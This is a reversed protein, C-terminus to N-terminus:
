GGTLSALENSLATLNQAATQIQQIALVNETTVREISKM